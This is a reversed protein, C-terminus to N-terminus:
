LNICGERHGADKNHNARSETIKKDHVLKKIRSQYLGAKGAPLLVRMQFGHTQLPPFLIDPTNDAPGAPLCGQLPRNRLACGYAGPVAVEGM